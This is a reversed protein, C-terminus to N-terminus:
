GELEQAAEGNVRKPPMMVVPAEPAGEPVDVLINMGDLKAANFSTIGHNALIRRLLARQKEEAAPIAKKIRKRDIELAGYQALLNKHENELQAAEQLEAQQLSFAKQM